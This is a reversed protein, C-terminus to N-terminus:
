ITKLLEIMQNVAKVKEVQLTDGTIESADRTGTQRLPQDDFFQESLRAIEVGTTTLDTRTDDQRIIDRSAENTTNSSENPSDDTRYTSRPTSMPTPTPPLTPTPTPSLTPTPSATPPSVPRRTSIYANEEGSTDCIECKGLRECIFPLDDDCDRRNWMNREIVGCKPDNTFQRSEKSFYEVSWGWNYANPIPSGGTKLNDLEPAGEWVYEFGYNPENTPVTTLGIWATKSFFVSAGTALKGAVKMTKNAANDQMADGIREIMRTATGDTIRRLEEHDEWNEVVALRSGNAKCFNNAEHWDMKDFIYYYRDRTSPKEDAHWISTCSEKNKCAMECSEKSSAQIERKHCAM